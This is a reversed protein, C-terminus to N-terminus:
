EGSMGIWAAGGGGVAGVLAAILDRKIDPKDKVKGYLGSLGGGITSGLFGGTVLATKKYNKADREQNALIQDIKDGSGHKVMAAGAGIGGGLLAMVLDRRIDPQKKLKGYLLSGLGGAAAGGGTYLALDRTKATEPSTRTKDEAKRKKAEAKRWEADTDVDPFGEPPSGENIADNQKKQITWAKSITPVVGVGTMSGLARAAVEVPGGVYKPLTDGVVDYIDKDTDPNALLGGASGYDEPNFAEKYLQDFLIQAKSM